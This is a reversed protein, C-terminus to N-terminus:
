ILVEMGAELFAEKRSLGKEDMLKEAIVKIKDNLKKREKEWLFGRVYDERAENACALRIVFDQVLKELM